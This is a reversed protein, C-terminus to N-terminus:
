FSLALLIGGFYTISGRTVGFINFNSANIVGTYADLLVNKTLFLTAGITFNSSTGATENDVSTTVKGGTDTTETTTSKATSLGIEAGINIFFKNPVLRYQGGFNLRPKFEVSVEKVTDGEVVTASTGSFSVANAKSEDSAIEVPLHLRAGLGIKDSDWQIQLVPEITHTANVIDSDFSNAGTFRIKDKKYTYVSSGVVWQYQNEGYIESNLSYDLDVTFKFGNDKSLITYDGLNLALEFDTYNDTGVNGNSSSRTIPGYSTSGGYIEYELQDVHFGFSLKVSPRIGKETLDKAMGWKISPTLNGYESQYSKYDTTNVIADEKVEFLQYDSSFDFRFGMDAVGILIGINHDPKSTGTGTFFAAPITYQKIKKNGGAFATESETYSIDYQNFIGGNYSVGIYLNGTKTAFGLDAKNAAFGAQAYFKEFGSYVYWQTEMYNGGPLGFM